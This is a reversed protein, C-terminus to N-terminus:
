PVLPGVQQAEAVRSGFVVLLLTGVFNRLCATTWCTM